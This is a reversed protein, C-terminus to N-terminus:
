KDTELFDPYDVPSKFIYNDRYKIHYPHNVEIAAESTVGLM